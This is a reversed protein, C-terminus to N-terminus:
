PPAKVNVETSTLSCVISNGAVESALVNIHHLHIAITIIDGLNTVKWYM